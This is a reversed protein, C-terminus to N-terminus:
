FPGDDAERARRGRGPQVFARRRALCPATEVLGANVSDALRANEAGDSGSRGANSGPLARRSRRAVAGRRPMRLRQGIAARGDAGGNGPSGSSCARNRRPGARCDTRRRALRHKAGRFIAVDPLGARAPDRGVEISGSAKFDARWSNSSLPTMEM